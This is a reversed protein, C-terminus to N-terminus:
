TRSTSKTSNGPFRRILSVLTVWALSLGWGALIDSPFHGSLYVRSVGVALVHLVGPVIMPWRWRTPWVLISFALVIALTDAAESSPFGFEFSPTLTGWSAFANRQVVTRALLNVIVIGVIAITLFFADRLRREDNLGVVGLVAVVVVVDIRGSRALFGVIRHSWPMASHHLLRLITADWVLDSQNSVAEALWVFVCLPLFVGFVSALLLGRHALILKCSRTVFSETNLIRM